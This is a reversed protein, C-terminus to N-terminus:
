KAKSAKVLAQEVDDLLDETDEMGISLRVLSDDIGLMKRHEAPVSGHTMVSPCEALSEVGGLSEALIFCKLGSLFAFSQKLGGKIYFTIMGGFGRMQKKAIEHQPHSKLGPYTVKRVFSHQELYHALVGATYCCQNMRVKLTKFGRLMMYTDMVGLNVGITKAIFHIKDFLEKSNCTIAGAIVDSHGNIYKTASHYVVDAGLLLPSQLYPTGFTNDAVLLMNNKKCIASLAEIDCVKLTPNTPTEVWLM